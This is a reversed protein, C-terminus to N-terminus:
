QAIEAELGVEPCLKQAVKINTVIRVARPSPSSCSSLHVVSKHVLKIPKVKTKPAHGPGSLMLTQPRLPGLPGGLGRFDISEPDPDREWVLTLGIFNSSHM